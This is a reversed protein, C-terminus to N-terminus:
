NNWGRSQLATRINNLDTPGGYFSYGGDEDKEVENAGAEIAEEEPDGVNAYALFYTFLRGLVPIDKLKAAWPVSIPFGSPGIM